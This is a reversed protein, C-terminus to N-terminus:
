ATYFIGEKLSIWLGEYAFEESVETMYKIFVEDSLETLLSHGPSSQNPFKPIRSM